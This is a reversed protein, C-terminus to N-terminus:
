LPDGCLSAADSVCHLVTSHVAVSVSAGHWSLTNVTAADSVNELLNSLSATCKAAEMYM